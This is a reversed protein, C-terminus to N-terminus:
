IVNVVASGSRSNMHWHEHRLLPEEVANRGQVIREEKTHINLVQTAARSVSRSVLKKGEKQVM